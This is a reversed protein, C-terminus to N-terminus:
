GYYDVMLWRPSTCFFFQNPLDEPFFSLFQFLLNGLFHSSYTGMTCNACTPAFIIQHFDESNVGELHNISSGKHLLQVLNNSSLPQAFNWHPHNKFVVGTDMFILREGFLYLWIKTMRKSPTLTWQLNASSSWSEHSVYDKYHCSPGQCTVLM